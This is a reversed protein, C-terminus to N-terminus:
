AVNKKAHPVQPPVNDAFVAEAARNAAAQIHETALHAYRQTMQLTRHGLLKALTHLDVGAMVAHSAFTHRLTHFTVNKLGAARVARTFAKELRPLTWEPFLERLPVPRSTLMDILRQPLPVIRRDGNKTDLLIVVRDKVNVRDRDLGLVESARMGTGLALLAMDHVDGTCVNLLQQVEDHSLYRERPPTKLAGIGKVPHNTTLKLKNAWTYMHSLHAVETNITNAAKGRDRRNLIFAHVDAPQINTILTEGFYDKLVKASAVNRLYSRPKKHLAAHENVYRDVLVSFALPKEIPAFYRGERVDAKRKALVLEAQRKSPGIAERVRKGNAFYQICWTTGTRTQRKYLGM